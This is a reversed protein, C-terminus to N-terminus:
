SRSSARGDVFQLVAFPTGDTTGMGLLSVIGPHNLAALVAVEHRV